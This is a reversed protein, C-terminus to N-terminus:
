VRIGIVLIDDTQESTGKWKEFFAELHVKQEQMPKALLSALLKKFGGTTLKKGQDNFQDAYGDTFLYVVDGKHLNLMHGSFSGQQEYVAGGISFRDGKLESFVGGASYYLPRMAGSFEVASSLSRTDFCCVAVDMGDHADSTKQDMEVKQKLADQIGSHLRNLIESSNTVDQENVIQNLLSSGIMSMFAGPVGHGTCDIAAVVVKDARESIFYFDGSVVDKPRYLVFGEPFIKNILVAPPLIAQQIRKAYNISDTIDKNKERLAEHAKDVAKKQQEIIKKQRQTVSWRRYMFVSFMAVLLLGGATFFILLKQKKSEAKAVASQREQAAKMTMEKKDFQYTLEKRTAANNKDINFLSDKIEAYRRYHELAINHKGVASYLDSLHMHEDKQVNLTGIKESLALAKLLLSEAEAYKKRAVCLMGINTIGTVIGNKDGIEVSLDRARTYYDLAIAYLSDAEHGTKKMASLKYVGGTNGLNVAMGIKDGLEEQIKLARLYYDLAKPYDEQDYYINGINGIPVAQNAKNRRIDATNRKQESRHLFDEAIKLARLYYDLAKKYDGLNRYVVGINCLHRSVASMSKESEASDGRQRADAEMNEDMRLARFYYDLAQSYDGLNKYVVGINGLTTALGKKAGSVKDGSAIVQEWVSVASFYNELAPIYDAKEKHFVGLHHYSKAMGYKWKQKESLQLAQSSLLFATDPNSGKLEMALANLTSVRVSDIGAAPPCRLLFLLSDATRNYSFCNTFFIFIPIFLFCHLPRKM